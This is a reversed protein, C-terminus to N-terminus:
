RPADPDHRARLARARAITAESPAEDTLEHRAALEARLAAAAREWTVQAGAAALDGATGPDWDLRLAAYVDALVARVRAGGGVILFGETWAAGRVVRQSIGALKIPGAHLSWAGPCYEGPLAGVDARVGLRALAARVLETMAVFRDTTSQAVAASALGFDVTEETVAAARGGGVRMTAAFRHRRAAAVADGFGPALRDLRGFSVMPEPRFLRFAPPAGDAVEALLASGLATDLVPDGPLNATLLRLAPAV